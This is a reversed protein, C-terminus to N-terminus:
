CPSWKSTKLCLLMPYLNHSLLSPSCKPNLDLSPILFIFLTLLFTLSLLTYISFDYFFIHAKPGLLHLQDKIPVCSNLRPGQFDCKLIIKSFNSESRMGKQIFPLIHIINNHYYFINMLNKFLTHIKIGRLSCQTKLFSTLSLLTSVQM